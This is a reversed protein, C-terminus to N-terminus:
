LKEGEFHIKKMKERDFTDITIKNAIGIIIFDIHQHM